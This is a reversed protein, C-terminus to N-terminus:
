GNLNTWKRGLVETWFKEGSVPYAAAAVIRQIPTASILKTCMMCPSTTCYLTHASRVDTLRAIANQEAHLAQCLDLGQGSPAFAGACPAETCHRVGSPVGNYGTSLIRNDADVIIAGVARRACTSRTSVVEAIKMFWVDHPPRIAGLRHPRHARLMIDCSPPVPDNADWTLSCERCVMQDSMQVAKCTM